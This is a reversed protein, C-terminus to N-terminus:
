IPRIEDDGLFIFLSVLTVMTLLSELRTEYDRNGISTSKCISICCGQLFPGLCCATMKPPQSSM